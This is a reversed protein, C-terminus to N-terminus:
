IYQAVLGRGAQTHPIGWLDRLAVLVVASQMQELRVKGLNCKAVDFTGSSGLIHINQLKRHISM